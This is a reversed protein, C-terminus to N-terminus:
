LNQHYQPDLLRIEPIKSVTNLLEQLFETVLPHANRQDNMIAYCTRYEPGNELSVIRCNENEALKHGLTAPMIAWADKLDLLQRLLAMNDLMVKVEPDNGFWYDHWMLFTNSWPIYIEDTSNLQSPLIGDQYSASKHCVFVLQEEFLPITQVKKFFHPNTILGLDAEKNEISKYSLNSQMTNIHLSCKPHSELFNEIVQPMFYFNLSDVNVIRLQTSPREFNIKGTEIWLQEWKRAIPVFRQGADTLELTRSGKRRIILETGLEEELASLRHSLAPQSVFLSEAISKASFDVKKRDVDFLAASHLTNTEDSSIGSLSIDGSAVCLDSAFLKGTYLDKNYNEAEYEAVVNKTGLLDTIGCGTAMVVTLLLVSILKSYKGICKM